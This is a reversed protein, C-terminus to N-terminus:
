RNITSLQGDNWAVFHANDVRGTESHRVKEGVGLHTATNLMLDAGRINNYYLKLRCFPVYSFWHMGIPVESADGAHYLLTRM